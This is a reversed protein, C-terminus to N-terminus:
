KIIINEKGLLTELNNLLRESTTVWLNESLTFRGKNSEDYVIVKTNGKDLIIINKLDELKVSSNIPIKIWLTQNKLIEEKTTIKNCIIKPEQDESISARGEILVFMNEELKNSFKAYIDPFVIVEITGYFDEVSLFAMQRNTRTYKVSINNILGGIVVKQESEIKPQELEESLFDLSTHSTHQKLIDKYDYLPNGSIYIGLIEKEMALLENKEFEPKNPLFEKSLENKNENTVAFLDLQGELNQKRKQALSSQIQKYVELYQSRYGGLSDFAGAKILSEVTRSNVEGTLRELFESLSTFKGYKERNLVIANIQSKGVNKIASLGFRIKDSSVSFNGFGENIDPSLLPINLKRCSEIYEAVKPINDMVSTLLAAMFEIPYYTKLWATQYAIVAYAAAHSKNFAYKAFDVMEEFIQNAVDEPIGNKVCGPIEEGLGYVFNKREQEMVDTKKKGMARRLIDSQGLTYGALDQVIQMVQEQYVICGYTMELINKLRPHTYKIEEKSNKGAVYKPIFDMPGPRYLSVGAIIDELSEPKLEKMFQKMGASELQFIGETKGSSILEFVKKDNYDITHENLSLNHIRNIENFANKIVTLTRLGLFDMKLLGLEEITTMPFQTTVVGDNTNLPVYEIVPKDCIVVGAAHTSSHRPLGELKMSMDLLYKIEENNNYEELLEINQELAKKITIKLEMPVMKAIKDVKDYPLDLARGVDRIANRAAMTGFTIIQTVYESGYKEIVYNIVEQRREYCFDIDIDPMSLREPNLFREFILGYQIPDIDTIKLCYAVISGAASGRGPGVIIDNDKAYKIFDWVILFYDIFGMQKIMNIEYELRDKLEKTVNKYREELGILCLENLYEFSTKDEPPTFVPLKYENFNFSVNCREAIKQTNEIAEKAYPFLEAMQEPSKLYFQNGEYRMRNEENVTRGTQICLLIDHAQADEENIYHSDNTCVLPINTEQSIRILQQNVGQQRSIGHDQLELYFNDQGFIDNFLIAFEKGKEYSHRLLNKAVPGSLCASLAILGKHYKKLLEIDVRPKYYFGETFGYSVLKVLNQYGENNEALLVLHYYTNEKSNSKDFRSGITVYIECGLIPKIGNALAEKYFDIVGYMVGHDTIAISDMGLEKTRKILEPIKASGDLLSFGTHVHLHTFKVKDELIDCVKMIIIRIKCLIYWLITFLEFM